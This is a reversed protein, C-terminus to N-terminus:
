VPRVRHGGAGRRGGPRLPLSQGMGRNQGFRGRGEIRDTTTVRAGREELARAVGAAFPSTGVVVARGGLERGETPPGCPTWVPVSIWDTSPRDAGVSEPSSRDVVEVAGPEIWHRRRDFAYTPLSVRRGPEGVGSLDLAAGEAWMRGVAELAIRHGSREDDPHAMTTVVVRDAGAQPHLRALTTLTRGPGVEVLIANEDELVRAVGEAYQVTERLHRVWYGADRVEDGAWDGSLNSVFPLTPSEFRIHALGQAFEALIPELEKSHAAVDIHIRRCELGEQEMKSEFAELAPLPGAVVCLEPANVAAISLADPLAPEIEAAPAAVSTMGGEPLKEFLRGRLAVIRIADELTLVGALCAATYEGMSHGIMGWPWIGWSGLLRAMANSPLSSSPPPGHVPPPATESAEDLPISTPFLLARVDTGTCEAAIRLCEDMAERYAPEAEYLDAGMGAYQAGGGAFMFVVNRETAQAAISDADASGLADVVQDATQAVVVRRHEFEARGVRLTHSVDALSARDPRELYDALRIGAGDLSSRSKASLPILRWRDDTMATPAPVPPAEELVIHANTGGVGLSSVGARRPEGERPWTRAQGQVFFPTANWDVNPNPSDFHLTAPILEHEMALAVKIMGAVGAATDLHGINSKVSGLGCFGSRTTGARFAKTLAAVEIPDGMRTGTGHAEIYAVTDPDVDAIALAESIADAQGQVSPALYGVKGAGDNNIASGLIVAYIHDGDEIADALRRLVVAGAGSGFLTGESAADFPRCHGDPSLIEGDKYLYGERHPQEITVGGALAM